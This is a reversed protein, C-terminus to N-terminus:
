ALFGDQQLKSLKLMRTVNQLLLDVMIAKSIITTMALQVMQIGWSCVKPSLEMRALSRSGEASGTGPGELIFDARM